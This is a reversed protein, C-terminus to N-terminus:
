GDAKNRSFWQGCVSSQTDRKLGAEALRYGGEAGQGQYSVASLQGSMVTMQWIQKCLPYIM